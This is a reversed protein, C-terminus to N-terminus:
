RSWTRDLLRHLALFCAWYVLFSDDNKHTPPPQSQSSTSGAHAVGVMYEFGPPTLEALMTQTYSYTPGTFLGCVVNYLWFEWANHFRCLIFLDISQPLLFYKSLDLGFKDTWIGIMGWLPILTAM